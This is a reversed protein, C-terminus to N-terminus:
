QGHLSQDVRFGDLLLDVQEKLELRGGGEALGLREGVVGLQGEGRQAILPPALAVAVEGDLAEGVAPSTCSAENLLVSPERHRRGLSEGARVALDRAAEESANAM